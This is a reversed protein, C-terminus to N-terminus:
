KETDGEFDDRGLADDKNALDVSVAEWSTGRYQLKEMWWEVLIIRNFMFWNMESEQRISVTAEWVRLIFDLGKYHDGLGQMM